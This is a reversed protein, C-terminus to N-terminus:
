WLAQHVDTGAADIAIAAAIHDIFRATRTRGAIAGSAPEIRFQLQAPPAGLIAHLDTNKAHNMHSSQVYPLNLCDAGNPIVSICLKSREKLLAERELESMTVVVDYKGLIELERRKVKIQNVLQYVKTLGFPTHAIIRENRLYDINHMTLVTAPKNKLSMHDTYLTMWPHEIQIIDFRETAALVRLIKDIQRFYVTCAALPYRSFLFPFLWQLRELNSKPSPIHIGHVVACFKRLEALGSLQSENMVRCVLTIEHKSAIAKLINFQRLKEGDNAPFPCTRTIWLVKM